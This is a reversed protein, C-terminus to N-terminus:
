AKVKVEVMTGANTGSLINIEGGIQEARKHMNHLGNGGTSVSLQHINFGQGNDTIRMLIHGKKLEELRLEVETARAYKAANNVAEKFILYLNRRVEPSLTKGSFGASINTKFAIDRAELLRFGFETMRTALDELQDNKRKMAWIIDQMSESLASASHSIRKLLQGVEAQDNRLQSGAFESFFRISSLTSGMEDHLDRALGERFHELRDRQRRRYYSINAIVLAILLIITPKFYWRRSLAPIVKIKLYTGTENWVGDNNAAKVRFRYEGGDLNTYSVSPLDTYVWDTNFGDLKYAYRNREPQNYNLAAFEINFINEGPQIILMTDQAESSLNYFWKKLLPIKRIVSSREEDMVKLKTIVVEPPLENRLLQSPNFYNFANQFGIFIEGSATRNLGDTIINKFLGDATGYYTFSGDAPDFCHLQQNTNCWIRGEDDEELYYLQNTKLGNEQDFKRIINCNTDLELLLDQSTAYILGNNGIEIDRWDNYILAMDKLRFIRAQRTDPDFRVPFRNTALWIRGQPDLHMNWIRLRGGEHYAEPPLPVEEVADTQANYYFLGGKNTGFWLRGKRDEICAMINCTSQLRHSYAQWNKWSGSRPDRRSVWESGAWIFGRRDQMSCLIMSSKLDSNGPHIHEFENKKRDWKFFGGGWLAIFFTSGSPDTHDQIAGSMQNFQGLSPGAPLMVRKFRLAAPAYHELGAETGFWVSGDTADKYICTVMYNNHTYHDRAEHPFQVIERSDLYTIYLGHWGGGLWFFAQGTDLTDPLIATSIPIGDPFDILSDLAPEYRILGNFWSTLWLCGAHDETVFLISAGHLPHDPSDTRFVRFTQTKIDFYAAKGEYTLWMRGSQDLYSCYNGAYPFPLPYSAISYTLPEISYLIKEGSVWARGTKDFFVKGVQDNELEDENEPLIIRQFTLKLPDLRCLGKNGSVWISGDPALTLSKIFNGPLGEPQDRRYFFHRFEHGDFRNLGNVTAIWFFGQRDKIIDKIFDSSLGQDTTYQVFSSFSPQASLALCVFFCLPCLLYKRV